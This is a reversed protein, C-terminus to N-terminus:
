KPKKTRPRRSWQFDFRGITRRGNPSSPELLTIEQSNASPQRDPQDPLGVRARREHTRNMGCCVLNRKGACMSEDPGRFLSAASSYPCTNSTCLENRSAPPAVSDLLAHDQLAGCQGRMIAMSTGLSLRVTISRRQTTVGVFDYRKAYKQADITYRVASFSQCASETLGLRLCQATPVAQVTLMKCFHRKVNIPLGSATSLVASVHKAGCTALVQSNSM